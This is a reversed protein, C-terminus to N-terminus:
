NYEIFAIVDKNLTLKLTGDVTINIFCNDQTVTIEMGTFTKRDLNKCEIIITKM